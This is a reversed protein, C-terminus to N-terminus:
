KPDKPDGAAALAATCFAKTKDLWRLRQTYTLSLARRRQAAQHEAFGAASPDSPTGSPDPDPSPLKSTM